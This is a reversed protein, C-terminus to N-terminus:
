RKFESAKVLKCGALTSSGVPFGRTGESGPVGKIGPDGPQGKLLFLCKLDARTQLLVKLFVSIMLGFLQVPVVYSM